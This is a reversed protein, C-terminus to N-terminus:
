QHKDVENDRALAPLPGMGTPGAMVSGARRQYAEVLADHILRMAQIFKPHALSYYVHQGSKETVVAGKDRMIRLHQSVNQLSAQTHEALESVTRRGDRLACFISMRTPNAYVSFFEAMLKCSAGDLHGEQGPAVGQMM